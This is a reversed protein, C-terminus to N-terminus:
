LLPLVCLKNLYVMFAMLLECLVPVKSDNLAYQQCYVLSYIIEIFANTENKPEEGTDTLLIFM